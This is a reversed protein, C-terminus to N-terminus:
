KRVIEQQGFLYELEPIDSSNRKVRGAIAAFVIQRLRVSAIETTTLNDDTAITTM